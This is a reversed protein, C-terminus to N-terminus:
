IIVSVELIKFKNHIDNKEREASTQFSDHDMRLTEFNGRLSQIDEKTNDKDNKEEEIRLFLTSPQNSPRHFWFRLQVAVGLQAYMGVYFTM